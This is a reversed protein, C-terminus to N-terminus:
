ERARWWGLTPLTIQSSDMATGADWEEGWEKEIRSELRRYHPDIGLDEPRLRAPRDQQPQADLHDPPMVAEIRRVYDGARDGEM